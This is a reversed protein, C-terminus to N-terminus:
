VAPNALVEYAVTHQWIDDIRDISEGPLRYLATHTLTSADYTLTAGDFALTIERGVQACRAGALPEDRDFTYFTCAVSEIFKTSFM